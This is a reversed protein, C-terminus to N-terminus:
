IRRLIALRISFLLGDRELHGHSLVYSVQVALRVYSIGTRSANFRRVPVDLFAVASATAKKQICKEMGPLPGLQRKVDVPRGQLDKQDVWGCQGEMIM